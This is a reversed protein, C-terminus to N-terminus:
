KNVVTPTGLFTGKCKETAWVTWTVGIPKLTQEYLKMPTKWKKGSKDKGSIVAKVLNFYLGKKQKTVYSLYRVNIGNLANVGQKSTIKKITTIMVTPTHSRCYQTSVGSKNPTVNSFVATWIIKQQSALISSPLLLSILLIRLM